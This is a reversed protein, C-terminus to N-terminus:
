MKPGGHKDISIDISDLNPQGAAKNVLAENIDGVAETLAEATIAIVDDPLGNDIMEQKIAAVDLHVGQDGLHIHDSIDQEYRNESGEVQVTLLPGTVEINTTKGSTDVSGIRSCEETIQTINAISRNAGAEKMKEQLCALREARTASLHEALDEHEVVNDNM